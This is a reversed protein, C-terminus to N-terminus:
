YYALSDNKKTLDTSKSVRTDKVDSRERSIFKLM